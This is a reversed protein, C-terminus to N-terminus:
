FCVTHCHKQARSLSAHLFFHRPSPAGKVVNVASFFWEEELPHTIWPFYVSQSPWVLAAGELSFFYSQSPILGSSFHSIDISGTQSSSSPMTIAPRTVRSGKHTEGFKIELYPSPHPFLPSLALQM